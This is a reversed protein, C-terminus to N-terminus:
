TYAEYYRFQLSCEDTPNQMLVRISNLGPQLRFWSANRYSYDATYHSAGNLTVSNARCNVVLRSESPLIASYVIEDSLNGNEIRRLRVNECTQSDSTTIIIRPYTEANGLTTISFDTQLGSATYTPAVGGWAPGSGWLTGDGWAPAETGQSYWFPNTVQFNIQVRLRAHPQDASNETYRINSVSAECYRLTQSSDTPQKYLRTVGFTSMQAVQQKLLYMQEQQQDVPLSEDAFLWFTMSVDGVPRPAPAVGYENLGGSLGPLRTSRQVLNNFNDRLSIQHNPNFTYLNRGSGFRILTDM